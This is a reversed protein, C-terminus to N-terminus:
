AVMGWSDDLGHLVASELEALHEDEFVYAPVLQISSPGPQVIAGARRIAAVVATVEASDLPSGDRALEVARFCGIGRTAVVAPHESIRALTRELACALRRALGLADLRRQEALTALIAACSAPTGAQTEAHVFVADSRDFVECVEPAVLVASAAAAGNTLAKSLLMVDPRVPWSESAFFAGTRGFGTAVEDAILVIDFAARVEAVAELFEPSLPFAGSGLVPELVLAAIRNGERSFLQRLQAGGDHPSVHRVARRDAGYTAQGLQDGSLALAGYTLGHYGGTLGVVIGRQPVGRLVAWQRALKMALDNAAAGSTSFIVREFRDASPLGLLAEATEQAYAHTSRFLSLYSATRLATAVADVVAENGYGLPVNWLGSTACLLSSGDAELVRVGEAAVPQTSPDGWTGRATLGEWVPHRRTPTAM